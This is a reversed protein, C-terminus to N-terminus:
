LESEETTRDQERARLALEMARWAETSGQVVSGLKGVLAQYSSPDRVDQAAERLQVDETLHPYLQPLYVRLLADMWLSGPLSAVGESEDYEISALAAVALQLWTSQAVVTALLERLAADVGTRQESELLTRMQPNASNLFLKPRDLYLELHYLDTHHARRWDNLSQSFDEWEVDALTRLDRVIPDVYIPRPAGQAIISGARQVLSGDGEEGLLATRRVLLPRLFVQGKVDHRQLVFAGTWKAPGKSTLTVSHRYKTAPCMVSVLLCLDKRVDTGPPTVDELDSAPLSATMRFGLKNWPVAAADYATAAQELFDLTPDPRIVEVAVAEGNTPDDFESLELSLSESLPYPSLRVYKSM